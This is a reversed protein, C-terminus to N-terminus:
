AMAASMMAAGAGQGAGSALGHLLGPQQPMYVNEFSRTGLGQGMLGAMQQAAGMKLQARLAALNESLGAGAKGLAQQFGSSSQAGMGGFREAIGPIVEEEFQRKIPAEFAEFSEPDGSLIGSLYNFMEPGGQSLYQSLMQLIQQQEPTMTTMQSEKEKAGFLLESLKPM